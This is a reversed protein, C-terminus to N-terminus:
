LRQLIELAKKEYIAQWEPGLFCETVEYGGKEYDKAAPGYHAYGNACSIIFTYPHPSAQKINLGIQTCLEMPCTLFVAEGIRVGMVEITFTAEQAAENFAQHKRLTALDDQIHALREMARINQLYKEIHARNDADLARLNQCGRAQEQLYRYAYDAPFAPNLAYQLYLPLFSRFNLSLGRLSALLAAQERELAAIRQPIDKRRPLSIKETIVNLQAPGRSLRRCIELTRSALMLAFIDAERPRHPEKYLVDCVDGGAGQLFLACAGEDLAEEIMKAALGPFDATIPGGNFGMLPHCAFNFLVALPRGDTRDLRVVGVTPDLPGLAAIDEDPPCPNAQRITWHRGDKLRLTRNILFRDEQGTGVSVTVPEMHAWAERVAAKVRSLLEEPACLIRGPPHTHSASILVHSGPIGMEEEVSQRLRAVFDDPVDGILGLAVADMAVIALTVRSDALVLAKALLPDHVTRQPDASTIDSIGTGARLVNEAAV